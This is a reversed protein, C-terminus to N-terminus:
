VYYPHASRPLLIKEDDGVSVAWQVSRSWTPFQGIVSGILATTGDKGKAILFHGNLPMVDYRKEFEWAKMREFPVGKHDKSYNYNISIPLIKLAEEIDLSRRGTSAIFTWVLKFPDEDHTVHIVFVDRNEEKM